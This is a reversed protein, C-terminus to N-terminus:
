ANKIPEGSVIRAEIAAGRAVAMRPMDGLTYKARPIKM